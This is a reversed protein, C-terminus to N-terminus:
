APTVARDRGEARSPTAEPQSDRWLVVAATLTAALLVAFMGVVAWDGREAYYGPSNVVTYALAGLALAALTRSRTTRRLVAAGATVLLVAAALEAAIHFWIDGRGQTVEPVEGTALLLTWLAAISVGVALLFWGVVKM